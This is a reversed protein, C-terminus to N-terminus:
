RAPLDYRELGWRELLALLKQSYAPDTAYGAAHIRRIFERPEAMVALAAAYRPNEVFFWGHDIVGERLTAYARFPAVVMVRQGGVVEWTPLWVVGATGGRATAKIGFYNRAERALRSRGWDSELIAQAVTVSAPVGTLVQAVQAVPVLQQFFAREEPGAGAPLVLDQGARALWAQVLPDPPPRRLVQGPSVRYPPTLGNLAIIAQVTVAWREALLPVTEGAQVAYVALAGAAAVPGGPTPVPVAEVVEPDRGSRSTLAGREADAASGPAAGSGSPLAGAETARDSAAVAPSTEAPGVAVPLATTDPTEREVGVVPSMGLPVSTQYNGVIAGFGLLALVLPTVLPRTPRPM